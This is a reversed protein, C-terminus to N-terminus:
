MRDELTKTKNDDGDSIFIVTINNEMPIQDLEQELREFAPVIETGQGGHVM